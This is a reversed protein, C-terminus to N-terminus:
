HLPLKKLDAVVQEVGERVTDERTGQPIIQYGAQAMVCCEITQRTQPLLHDDTVGHARLENAFAVFYNRVQPIDWVERPDDDYGYVAFEVLDHPALKMLVPAMMRARKRATQISLNGKEGIVIMGFM